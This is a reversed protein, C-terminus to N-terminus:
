LYIRRIGNIKDFDSDFSVVVSVNNDIMTKLITCDSYNVSLNYYKFLKFSEDYDDDTLFVVKDLGLLADMIEDLELKHNNKKLSNLVEVLVTNNILKRERDIVPRLQHAKEHYDDNDIMLGILYTSDLFIM